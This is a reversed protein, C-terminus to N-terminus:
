SNDHFLDISVRSNKRLTELKVKWDERGFFNGSRKLNLLVDGYIMTKFSRCILSSAAVDKSSLHALIQPILEPPLKLPKHNFPHLEFSQSYPTSNINIPEV